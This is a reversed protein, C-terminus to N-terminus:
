DTLKIIQAAPRTRNTTGPFATPLGGTGSCPAGGRREQLGYWLKRKMVMHLPPASLDASRQWLPPTTKERMDVLVTYPLSSRGQSLGASDTINPNIPRPHSAGQRSLLGLKTQHFHIIIKWPQIHCILRRAEPLLPDGLFNCRGCNIKPAKNKRPCVDRPRLRAM